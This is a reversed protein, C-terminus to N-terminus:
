TDASCSAIFAIWCPVCFTGVHSCSASHCFCSTASLLFAACAAPMVGLWLLLQNECSSTASATSVTVADGLVIKAGHGLATQLASPVESAHEISYIPIDVDLLSSVAAAGRCINPFGIIAVQTSSDKVLTLVRLIDYGSVPIDM